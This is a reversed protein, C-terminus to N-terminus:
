LLSFQGLVDDIESVYLTFILWWTHLHLPWIFLEPKEELCLKPSSTGLYILVYVRRGFLTRGGANTHRLSSGLAM